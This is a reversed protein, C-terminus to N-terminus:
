RQEGNVCIVGIFIPLTRSHVVSYIRSPFWSYSGPISVQNVTVRGSEGPYIEECLLM